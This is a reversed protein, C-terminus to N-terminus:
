LQQVRRHLVYARGRGPPAPLELLANGVPSRTDADVEIVHGPRHAGEVRAGALLAPAPAVVDRHARRDQRRAAVEDERALRGALEVREVRARSVLQPLELAAAAVVAARGAVADVSPLVEGHRGAPARPRFPEQGSHESRALPARQEGERQRLSVLSERYQIDRPTLSFPGRPM